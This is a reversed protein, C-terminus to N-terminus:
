EFKKVPKLDLLLGKGGAAPLQGHHIQMKFPGHLGRGHKLTGIQAELCTKLSQSERVTEVHVESTDGTYGIRGEIVIRLESSDLVLASRLCEQVGSDLMITSELENYRRPSYVTAVNLEIQNANSIEATAKKSAASRVPQVAEGPKPSQCHLLTFIVLILSVQSFKTM